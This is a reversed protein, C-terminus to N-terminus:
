RGPLDEDYPIRGVYTGKVNTHFYMFFDRAKAPSFGIIDGIRYKPDKSETVKYQYTWKRKSMKIVENLLHIIGPGGQSLARRNYLGLEIVRKGHRWSPPNMPYM